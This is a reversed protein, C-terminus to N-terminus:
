APLVRSNKIEKLSFSSEVHQVGPFKLIRQMCLESFDDMNHVVVKMLYDHTGSMAHCEVIKPEHRVEAHFAETTSDPQSAMTVQVFATVDLGLKRQDVLAAYGAIIGSNELQKVRRFCPSESLGIQEALEVNSMRGNIQLLALIQRETANLKM